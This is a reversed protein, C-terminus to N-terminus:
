FGKYNNCQATNLVTEDSTVHEIPGTLTLLSIKQDSFKQIDIM